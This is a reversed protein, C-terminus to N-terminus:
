PLKAALCYSYIVVHNVTFQGKSLEVFNFAGKVRTFHMEVLFWDLNTFHSQSFFVAYPVSGTIKPCHRFTHRSEWCLFYLLQPWDPCFYSSSPDIIILILTKSPGTHFPCCYALTSEHRESCEDRHPGTAFFLALLVVSRKSGGWHKGAPCGPPALLCMNMEQRSLPQRGGAAGAWVWLARLQVVTCVVM